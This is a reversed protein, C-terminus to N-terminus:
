VPNYKRVRSRKALQAILSSTTRCATSGKVYVDSSIEELSVTRNTPSTRVTWTDTASSAASSVSAGMLARSKGLPATPSRRVPLPMSLQSAGGVNVRGVEPFPCVCSPADGTTTQAATVEQLTSLPDFVFGGTSILCSKM